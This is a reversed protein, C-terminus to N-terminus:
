KTPVYFYYDATYSSKTEDNVHGADCGEAPAKGGHTRVRQITTVNSLEGQGTHSVVNVLLWPISDPDLSDVHALAKGTVESGDNLKWSPGASHHGIVKDKRDHLDADPAKLAWSFKGDSGSQCTYIQSGTAHAYVAVELGTPAQIADPVDPPPEKPTAAQQASTFPGGLFIGLAIVAFAITKIGPSSRM